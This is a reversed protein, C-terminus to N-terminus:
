VLNTGIISEIKEASSAILRNGSEKRDMLGKKLLKKPDKNGRQVEKNIAEAFRRFWGQGNWTAYGLHTLLGEDSNVIKVTEDSMYRKSFDDYNRKIMKIALNKLKSELPGGKYNWEWKNKADAKDILSWFEKGEPTENLKGAHKRDIGFMTEGSDGMGRTSHKDPNYYGGEIKDIIKEAVKEWSSFKGTTPKSEVESEEDDSSFISKLGSVLYDYVVSGLSQEEQEKLGMLKKQRQIEERLVRKM